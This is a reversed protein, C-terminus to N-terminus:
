QLAIALEGPELRLAVLCEGAVAAEDHDLPRGPDALAAEEGGGALHRALPSGANEARAAGLELALEGIPDDALQELRGEGLGVLALPHERARARPRLRHELGDVLGRGPRRLAIAGEGRQVREVPERDVERLARWQHERDVVRV